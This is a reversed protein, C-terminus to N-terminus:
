GDGEDPVADDRVNVATPAPRHLPNNIRREVNDGRADALPSAPRAARWGRWWAGREREPHCSRCPEARANADAAEFDPLLNGLLEVLGEDIAGAGLGVDVDGAEDGGPQALAADGADVVGGEARATVSRDEMRVPAIPFPTSAVKCNQHLDSSVGM